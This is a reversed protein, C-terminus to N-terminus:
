VCLKVEKDIKIEELIEELGQGELGTAITISRINSPLDLWCSSPYAEGEGVEIWKGDWSLGHKKIFQPPSADTFEVMRIRIYPNNSGPAQFIIAQVKKM